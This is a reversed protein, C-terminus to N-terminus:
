AADFHMPVVNSWVLVMIDKTMERVRVGLIRVRVWFRLKQIGLGLGLGLISVHYM